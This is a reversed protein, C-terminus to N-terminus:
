VCLITFDKLINHKDYLFTREFVGLADREEPLNFPHVWWRRGFFKTEAIVREGLLGLYLYEMAIRQVIEDM